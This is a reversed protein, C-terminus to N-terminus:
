RRDLLSRFPNGHLAFWGAIMLAETSGARPPLTRRSRWETQRQNKREQREAVAVRRAAVLRSQALEPGGHARCVGGEDPTLLSCRQATLSWPRTISASCRYRVHGLATVYMTWEQPGDVPVDYSGRPVVCDRYLVGDVTLTTM